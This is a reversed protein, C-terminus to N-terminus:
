MCFYAALAIAALVLYALGAWLTGGPSKRSKMKRQKYGAFDEKDAAPDGSAAPYHVHFTTKVSYGIMDFLGHNNAFRLGGVGLLIVAPVFFADSLRQAIGYDNGRNVYAVAAAIVAGVGLSILFSKYKAM